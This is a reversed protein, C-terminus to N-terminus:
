HLSLQLTIPHPNKHRPQKIFLNSIKPCNVSLMTVMKGYTQVTINSTSTLQIQDTTM